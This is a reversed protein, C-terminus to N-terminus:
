QSKTVPSSLLAWSSSPARGRCRKRGPHVNQSVRLGFGSRCIVSSKSMPGTSRPPVDRLCCMEGLQYVATRAIYINSRFLYASSVTGQPSATHEGVNLVCRTPNRGSKMQNTASLGSLGRPCERQSKLTLHCINDSVIYALQVAPTVDLFSPHLIHCSKHQFRLSQKLRDDFRRLDCVM